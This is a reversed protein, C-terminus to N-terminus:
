YLAGRYSVSLQSSFLGWWRGDVQYAGYFNSVVDIVDARKEFARFTKGTRVDLVVAATAEAKYNYAAKNITRSVMAVIHDEDGWAIERVKAAGVNAVALADGGVKRVFLRRTEGDVAVFAFRDGSPSLSMFEVAPLAGYAALPPAARAQGAVLSAFLFILLARITSMSRKM